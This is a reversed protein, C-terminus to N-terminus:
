FCDQFAYSRGPKIHARPSGHRVREHWIKHFICTKTDQFWVVHQRPVLCHAKKFGFLASDQFWVIHQRPVLCHATKSGSWTSDQLWDIHQRTVLWHATKYGFVISNPFFGTHQRPVLCHAPGYLNEAVLWMGAPAKRGVFIASKSCKVLEAHGIM